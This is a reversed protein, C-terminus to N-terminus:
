AARMAIKVEELQDALDSLQQRSETLLEKTRSESDALDTVRRRAQRLDRDHEAASFKDAPTPVKELAALARRANDHSRTLQGLEDTLNAVRTATESRERSVVAHRNRLEDDPCSNVLAVALRNDSDNLMSGVFGLLRSWNETAGDTLEGAAVRQKCTALEGAVTAYLEAVEDRRGRFSQMGRRSQDRHALALANAAAHLTEFNPM